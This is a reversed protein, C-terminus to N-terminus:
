SWPWRPAWRASPRAARRPVPRPHRHRRHHRRVARGPRRHRQGHRRRGRREHGRPPAPPPPHRHVARLRHRRRPRDHRLPDALVRPRGHVASLVGVGAVGVFIGICPPARDPLGMAVVSGFAVLLVIIAVGVGILESSPDEQASCPSRAPSSSRWATPAPTRRHGGHRRRAAHRHAQRAAYTVDLYATQGDASVAASEAASRIPSAPSTTGTPSSRAPRRRRDAAHAADDLRGDDTHLVIRASLGGQSPFRDTLVDAAHQSEVGPCGSATRSSAAPAARCRGRRRRRGGALPGAGPVPPPRQQPRPPVPIRERSGGPDAGSGAPCWCWGPPHQGSAAATASRGQNLPRGAGEHRCRQAAARLRRRLTPGSRRDVGRPGARRRGSSPRSRPARTPGSASPRGSSARRRAGTRGAEAAIVALVTCCCARGGGQMDADPDVRNRFRRPGGARYLELAESAAAAADDDRGHLPAARGHRDPGPLRGHTHRVRRASDLAREYAAESRALEGDHLLVWGLRALLSGPSAASGLAENTEVAAELTAIAAPYDGAREDFDAVM